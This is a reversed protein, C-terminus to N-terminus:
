SVVLIPSSAGKRMGERMAQDVKVMVKDFNSQAAVLSQYATMTELRDLLAQHRGQDEPSPDQGRLVKARMEEFVRDIENRLEVFDRDGDAAELARSLTRHEATRGITRGLSEAMELIETM